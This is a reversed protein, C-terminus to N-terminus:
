SVRQLDRQRIAHRQIDERVRDDSGAWLDRATKDEFDRVLVDADFDLLLRVVPGEGNSAARHLPTRGHDDRGNVFAVKLLEEVARVHGGEAALHLPSSGDRLRAVDPTAGKELLVRIVDAHGNEAAEHLCTEQMDTIANPEAGCTILYSVIQVDGQKAALSLVNLGWYSVAQLPMEPIKRMILEVMEYHRGMVARMLLTSPVSQSDTQFTRLGLAVEKTFAERYEPAWKDPARHVYGSQDRVLAGLSLFVTVFAEDRGDAESPFDPEAQDWKELFYSVHNPIAGILTEVIAEHGVEAAYHAAMFMGNDLRNAIAGAELLKKVIDYHGKESALHLATKGQSDQLDLVTFPDAVHALAIELIASRGLAAAMHFATQGLANKQILYPECLPRELFIKAVEDHGAAIAVHLPTDQDCDGRMDAGAQVLSKALLPYDKEAALHLPTRSWNDCANLDAGASILMELIGENPQEAAYHLPTQGLSDTLETPSRAAILQSVTHLSGSLVALHLPSRKLDDQVELEEQNLALGQLNEGAEAAWHLETRGWLKRDARSKYDDIPEPQIRQLLSATSNKGFQQAYTIPDIKNIDWCRVSAGAKLLEDVIEDFGLSAAVHLATRRGWAAENVDQESGPRLFPQVIALDGTQVAAIFSGDNPKAGAELLLELAPLNRTVAALFLSTRQCNDRTNVPVGQATLRKILEPTPAPEGPVRLLACHLATGGDGKVLAGKQAGHECLIDIVEEQGDRLYAAANHLVTRGSWDPLNQDIKTDSLLTKVIEAHGKMAAFRLPTRQWLDLITADTGADLLRKVVAIHGNGAPKFLPTEERRDLSNVDAEAQILLDVIDVFGKEAAFYLPSRRSDDLPDVPVPKELLYKVLLANGGICAKHLATQGLGDKFSVDAGAECLFQVTEMAGKRAAQVLPKGCESILDKNHNLVTRVIEFHGNAIALGLPSDVSEVGDGIHAVSAGHTLLFRACQILGLQCAIHLPTLKYKDRENLLSPDQNALTVLAEYNGRRVARHLPLSDNMDRMDTRAGAVLLHHVVAAASHAAALHLPTSGAGDRTNTFHGRFHDGLLGWLGFFVAIHLPTPYIRDKAQSHLAFYLKFPVDLQSRADLWAIFAPGECFSTVVQRDPSCALIQKEALRSHSAWELVAYDYLSRSPLFDPHNFRLYAVSVLAVFLNGQQEDVQFEPPCKTGDEGVPFGQLFETVTTHVVRVTDDPLIEVLPLCKDRVLRRFIALKTESPATPNHLEYRDTEKQASQIMRVGYLGDITLPTRATVIWQFICIALERQDIQQLQHAYLQGLESPLRELQELLEDEDGDRQELVDLTLRAYLFMGDCKRRLASLLKPMDQALVSPEKAEKAKQVRDKIYLDIDDSSKNIVNGLQLQTGLPGSALRETHRLSRSTIFVQLGPIDRLTAIWGELIKPDETCEDLADVVLFASKVLGIISKMAEKFPEDSDPEDFAGVQDALAFCEARLTPNSTPLQYLLQHLITSYFSNLTQLDKRTGKKDFFFYLTIRRQQSLHNHIYYSIFSKGSGPKGLVWLIQKRSGWEQFAPQHLIWRCTGQTFKTSWFTLITKFECCKLSKLLSRQHDDRQRIKNKDAENKRHIMTVIKNKVREYSADERSEFKNLGFHDTDLMERDRGARTGGAEDVVVRVQFGLIVNPVAETFDISPVARYGRLFEDELNRTETSGPSMYRLLSPSAGDWYHILSYLIGLRAYKSGGHPTGLFIIGALSEVLNDHLRRTHTDDVPRKAFVLAQEILLGGFSHSAEQDERMNELDSLFQRGYADLDKVLANKQWRSNHRYTMIRADPVDQNLFDKLWLKRTKKHTWTTEVSSGLGHVAVIDVTANPPNYLINFPLPNEPKHVEKSGSGSSKNTNPYIRSTMQRIVFLLLRPAPSMIIALLALARAALQEGRSNTPSVAWAAGAGIAVILPNRLSSRDTRLSLIVLIMIAMARYRSTSFAM